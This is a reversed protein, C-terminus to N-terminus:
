GTMKAKRLAALTLLNFAVAGLVVFWFRLLL